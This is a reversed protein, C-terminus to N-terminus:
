GVEHAPIKFLISFNGRPAEEIWIEGGLLRVSKRALALGGIFQTTYQRNPHFIDFVKDFEINVRTASRDCVKFQWFSETNKASIEILVEHGVHNDAIFSVVEEVIGAFTRRDGRLESPLDNFQLQLPAIRNMFTDQLTAIIQSPSFLVHERSSGRRDSYRKIELIVPDLSAATEKLDLVLNHVDSAKGEADNTYNQGLFSELEQIKSDLRSTFGGLERSVKRTLQSTDATMQRMAGHEEMTSIDVFSVVVEWRGKPVATTAMHHYPIARVFFTRLGKIVEISRTQHDKKVLDILNRIEHDAIKFNLQAISRGIDHPMINVFEKINENFRRITLEDDLFIMGINSTALLFEIDQNARSVQEIKTQHEANVTYLEENVSQLEENTSQLEENSSMLEENTSQLEENTTELEEISTQLSEKTSQLQEKLNNIQELSHTSANYEESVEGSDTGDKQHETIAILYRRIPQPYEIFLPKVTLKYELHSQKSSLIHTFIVQEGTKKARLLATNLALGLDHDVIKLINLTSAGIPFELYKSANGFVHLLDYQDDVLVSPPLYIDLLQDYIQGLSSEKVVPKYKDHEIAGSSSFTKVFRREVPKPLNLAGLNAQTESIKVFVRHHPDLVKFEPALQGLSESKGLFLVGEPRLGFHFLALTRTQLNPQFYILVNRCTILHMKTFPPDKTVNHVSFIIARRLVPVVELNNSKKTFYRDLIDPAVEQLINEPYIGKAATEIARRDIDTAFLKIELSVKHIRLYELFEIAVSYAEEGTSCAAVWIRITKDGRQLASNIIQPIVREKVFAFESTDRFFRTVGILVEGHLQKLEVEDRRLLDLYEQVSDLHSLKVRREIRRGITSPRYDSFDLGEIKMLLQSIEKFVEADLELASQLSDDQFQGSVRLITQPMEEPLQITDFFGQDIVSRPMGDFQSSEPEQVVVFGENEKIAGCGRTGDSGTGSLIVAVARNRHEKALSILFQDIPLKLSLNSALESPVLVTGHIELKQGPSILYIANPAVETPQEVRHIPMKTHRALIESMLSKFDPSLHQIVVYTLDSDCPAAKFFAELADLGGASAGIGIIMPANGLSPPKTDAM